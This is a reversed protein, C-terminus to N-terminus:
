KPSPTPSPPQSGAPSPTPTPTAVPNKLIYETVKKAVDPTMNNLILAGKDAKIVGLLKAIDAVKMKDLIAAAKIPDMNEYKAALAQLDGQQGSLKAALADLEEQKIKQANEKATTDAERKDLESATTKQKKDVAAMDAKQKDLAAQADQIEKLQASTPNNLHLFTAAMQKSGGVDFYVLAVAAIVLVLFVIFLIIGKSIRKKKKAPKQPSMPKGPIPAGARVPAPAGAPRPTEAM